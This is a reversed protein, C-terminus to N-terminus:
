YPYVDLISKYKWIIRSAAVKDHLALCFPVTLITYDPRRCLVPWHVEGLLKHKLVMIQKQTIADGKLLDESM